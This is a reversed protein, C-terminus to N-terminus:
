YYTFTYEQYGYIEQSGDGFTALHYRLIINGKDDKKEILKSSYLPPVESSAKEVSSPYVAYNNWNIFGFKDLEYVNVTGYSSYTPGGGYNYYSKETAKKAQDDYTYERKYLDLGQVLELTPPSNKERGIFIEDGLNGYQITSSSGESDIVKFYKEQIKQFYEVMRGKSDRKYIREDEPILEVKEITALYVSYEEDFKVSLESVYVYSSVYKTYYGAEDFQYETILYPEGKEIVGTENNLKLDRYYTREVSKVNGLYGEQLRDNLHRDDLNKIVEEDPFDDIDKSCSLSLTSVAAFILLQFIRKKM